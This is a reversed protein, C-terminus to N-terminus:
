LSMDRDYEPRRRPRGGDCCVSPVVIFGVIAALTAGLSLWFSRILESCDIRVTCRVGGHTPEDVCHLSRAIYDRSSTADHCHAGASDCWLADPLVVRELLQEASFLQADDAHPEYVCGIEDTHRDATAGGHAFRLLVVEGAALRQFALLLLFM